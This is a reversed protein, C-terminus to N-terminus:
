VPFCLFCFSVIKLKTKFTSLLRHHCWNWTVTIVTTIIVIIIVFKSSCSSGSENTM